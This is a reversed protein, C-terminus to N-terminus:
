IQRSLFDWMIMKSINSFAAQLSYQHKSTSPHPLLVFSYTLWQQLIDEPRPTVHVPNVRNGGGDDTVCVRARVCVRVYACVCVCVRVRVCVCVCVSVCPCVCVCVSVRVCVCVCVYEHVCVCVCVCVCVHKCYQGRSLNICLDLWTNCHVTLYHRISPETPLSPPGAIAQYRMFPM